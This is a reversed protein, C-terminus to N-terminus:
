RTRRDRTAPRQRHRRLQVDRAVAAQIRGDLLTTRADLRHFARAANELADVRDHWSTQQDLPPTRDRLGRLTDALTGADAATEPVLDAASVPMGTMAQELAERADERASWAQAWDATLQDIGAQRETAASTPAPTPTQGTLADSALPAPQTRGRTPRARRAPTPPRSTTGDFVTGILGATEAVPATTPPTPSGSRPASSGTAPSCHPARPSQPPRAPMPSEPRPVSWRRDHLRATPSRAPAWPPRSRPIRSDIPILKRRLLLPKRRRRMM